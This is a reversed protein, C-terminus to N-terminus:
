SVLEAPVPEAHADIVHQEITEISAFEVGCGTCTFVEAPEAEADPAPPTLDVGVAAAASEADPEDGAAAQVFMACSVGYHKSCFAMSTGDTLMSLLFMAEIQCGPTDCIITRAM